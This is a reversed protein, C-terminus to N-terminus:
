IAKDGNSERQDVAQHEEHTAGTNVHTISFSFIHSALHALKISSENFPLFSVRCHVICWRVGCVAFAHLLLLLLSFVGETRQGYEDNRFDRQEYQGTKRGGTSSQAKRKRGM